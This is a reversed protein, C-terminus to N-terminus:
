DFPEEATPRGWVALRGVAVLLYVPRTHGACGSLLVWAWRIGRRSRAVRAGANM